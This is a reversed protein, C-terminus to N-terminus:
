MKGGGSVKEGVKRIGSLGCVEGSRAGASAGGASGLPPEGAKGTEPCDDCGAVEGAAAVSDPDVPAGFGDDVDVSVDEVVSVDGVVSVDEVDVAVDDDAAAADVDDSSEAADAVEAGVASIFRKSWSRSATSPFLPWFVPAAAGAGVGSEAADGSVAAVGAADVRALSLLVM